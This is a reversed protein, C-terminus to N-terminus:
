FYLHRINIEVAEEGNLIGHDENAEVPAARLCEECYFNFKQFFLLKNCVICRKSNNELEKHIKKLKKIKEYDFYHQKIIEIVDYGLKIGNIKGEALDKFVLDM